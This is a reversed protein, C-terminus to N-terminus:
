RRYHNALCKFIWLIFATDIRCQCTSAIPHLEEAIPKVFIFMLGASMAWKKMRGVQNVNLAEEYIIYSLATMVVSDVAELNCVVAL